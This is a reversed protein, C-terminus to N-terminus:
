ESASAHEQRPALVLRQTAELELVRRRLIAKLNLTHPTQDPDAELKRLTDRLADLMPRRPQLSM